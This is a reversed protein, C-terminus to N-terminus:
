QNSVLEKGTEKTVYQNNKDYITVITTYLGSDLFIKNVSYTIPLNNLINEANLIAREVPLNREIQFIM